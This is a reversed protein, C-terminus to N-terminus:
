FLVKLLFRVGFPSANANNMYSTRWVADVRLIKFINEVGASFEVYGKDPTQYVVESKNILYNEDNYIQGWASRFGAVTRLDLRNFLPIKSTIRGNFHHDIHLTAYTDSVFEYYDMLGFMNEQISITQNGPIIDMLQLPVTGLTTGAETIFITKGFIGTLFPQRYFFKFKNYNFDSQMVGAMGRIYSFRITPHWRTVFDRDVGYGIDKRNPTISLTYIMQFDKLDNREEGNADIYGMDFGSISTMSEYKSSVKLRVNKFVETELGLAYSRTNTLKDNPGITFLSAAFNRSYVDNEQSLLVGRQELDNRLGMSLIWRGEQRLMISFGLGFKFRNDKSGYAGYGGIRWKDNRSFYTRAGLQLRLGEVDNYGIVNYYPGYDINGQNFWGSSFMEFLDKYFQFKQNEDLKSHMSYIDKDSTNIKVPRLKEWQDESIKYIADDTPQLNSVFSIPIMIDVKQDYYNTVKVAEAGLFEWQKFPSLDMAISDYEITYLDENIKKFKQSISINNVFNVNYGETATLDISHVVYKSTDAWFSGEFTLERERKPFYQIKYLIGDDRMMSDVIAYRYNLLARSSLPSAFKKNFLVINNDFVDYELYLENIYRTISPNNPAGSTNSAQLIERTRIPMTKGYVKYIEEVLLFPFFYKEDKAYIRSTFEDFKKFPGLHKLTSDTDYIDFRVKDYRNYAFTEGKQLSYKKHNQRIRKLIFHAPNEKTNDGYVVVEELVESDEELYITMRKSFNIKVKRKVYGMHSVILFEDDSKVELEFQGEENTITGSNSDSVVSTFALPEKSNLDKVIGRVLIQGEVGISSFLFLFILVLNNRAHIM